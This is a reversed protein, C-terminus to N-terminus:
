KMVEHIKETLKELEMVRSGKILIVDGPAFIKEIEPYIDDRKEFHVASKINKREAGAKIGEANEGITILLDVGEEAAFEGVEEHLARSNEGLEAMGAFVAIRRKGATAMLTKVASKMSAPAANYSDDIVTIGGADSVKLRNGTLEAKEMAKAADSPDVGMLSCAAVALALNIGNHAGPIKLHVETEEGFATLKVDVGLAGKDTIGDVSVAADQCSGVRVIGYSDPKLDKLMDDAGDIVLTNEETFFDTIELKADRIGERSGLNEMHSIGINTIVGIHPRVIDALRHIEGKHEMGMEIVAAEETGDLALVTLPVGFQNNFNKRSRATRYKSSLGAYILDRTSTKGVSGTVAVTKVDLTRMYYAALNQLAKLTDDTLIVDCGEPAKSEDSVVVIRCGSNVVDPIFKHADHVQGKIAFFVKGSGAQRSDIVVETATEMGGGRILRGGAARAIEESTLKRM